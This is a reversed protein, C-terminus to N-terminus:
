SREFLAVFEALILSTAGWVQRGAIAFHPAHFSLGGREIRHRGRIAPTCLEAVPLEVLAAVEEPSPLFVLSEAAVAVVPTIEFGSIFVYVPSLQGLVTLGAAPVGLEEELERLAATVPTEGAEVLGGPLSVQDAHARMTPPRLMAPISWEGSAKHLALVVAARRADDPVPGHHRGFALSHGMTRHAIRGPLSRALERALAEAMAPPDFSEWGKM